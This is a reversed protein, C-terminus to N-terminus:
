VVENRHQIEVSGYLALKHLKNTLCNQGFDYKSVYEIQDVRDVVYFRGKQVDSHLFIGEMVSEFINDIQILM